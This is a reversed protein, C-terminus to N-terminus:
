LTNKFFKGALQTSTNKSCGHSVRNILNTINQLKSITPGSYPVDTIIYQRITTYTHISYSFTLIFRYTTENTGHAGKIEFTARFVSYITVSSSASHILAHSQEIVQTGDSFPFPFFFFQVASIYRCDDPLSLAILRYNLITIVLM